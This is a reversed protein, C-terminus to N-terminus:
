SAATSATSVLPRFPRRPVPVGCAVHAARDHQRKDHATRALARQGAPRGPHRNAPRLHGRPRPHKQRSCRPQQRDPRRGNAGPRTGTRRLGKHLARGRQSGTSSPHADVPACSCRGPNKRKLNMTVGIQYPDYVIRRIPQSQRLRLFGRAGIKAIGNAFEGDAITQMRDTSRAVGFGFASKVWLPCREM